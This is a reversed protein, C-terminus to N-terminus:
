EPASEWSFLVFRDDESFTATVGGYGLNTLVAAVSDLMREREEPSSPCDGVMPNADTWRLLAERLREATEDATM